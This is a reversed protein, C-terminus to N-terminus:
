EDDLFAGLTHQSKAVSASSFSAIAKREDDVIEFLKDLSTMELLGKLRVPPRLLKLMGGGHLIASHAAVLEGIGSSDIYAVQDCNLLIYRSSHQFAEMIHTRLSNAETGITIRGVLDLIAVGGSMRSKVELLM